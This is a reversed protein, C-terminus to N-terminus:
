ESDASFWLRAYLYAVSEALVEKVGESYRWWQSAEYDQDVVSIVGVPVERGFARSFLLRTRRAHPGLTVVNIGRPPVRNRELWSRLDRAYQYTRDRSARNTPVMEVQPPVLGLKRFNQLAVYAYTDDDNAPNPVGSVPGGVTVVRKYRGARVIEAARAIAYEPIWGEVVLVDADIPRNVSLFPHVMRVGLAAAVALAGGALLWGRWTLSWRMRREILLRLWPRREDM